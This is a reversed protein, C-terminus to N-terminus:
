WVVVKVEGVSPCGKPPFTSYCDRERKDKLPQYYSSSPFAHLKPALKFVQQLWGEQALWGKGSGRKDEEGGRIGL